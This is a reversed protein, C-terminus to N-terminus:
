KPQLNVSDTSGGVETTTYTYTVTTPSPTGSGVVTNPDFVLLAIFTGSALAPGGITTTTGSTSVTVGSTFKDCALNFVQVRAVGFAPTSGNDSQVIHITGGNWQVWYFGVGPDVQKITGNSRLSYEVFDLNPATGDRFQQCTTGTPTIHQSPPTVCNVRITATSTNDDRDGPQDEFVLDDSTVTATNTITTNCDTTKNTLRSVFITRSQGEPVSGFNCTLLNSASISCTSGNANWDPGSGTWVGGPLQDTLTFNDVINNLNVTIATAVIQFSATDGGNITSVVATKEVKFKDIAFATNGTAAFSGAVVALSMATVLAPRAHVRIARLVHDM